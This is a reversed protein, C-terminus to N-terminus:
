TKMESFRSVMLVSGSILVLLKECSENRPVLFLYVAIVAM